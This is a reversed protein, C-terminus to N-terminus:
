SPILELEDIYFAYSGAQDGDTDVIILDGAVVSIVGVLGLFTNEENIVRVHNGYEMDNGLVTITRM